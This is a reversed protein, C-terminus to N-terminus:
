YYGYKKLDLRYTEDLKRNSIFYRSLDIGFFKKKSLRRLLPDFFILVQRAKWTTIHDSIIQSRRFTNWTFHNIIRLLKISIYSLSVNRRTDEINEVEGGCFEGIRRSVGVPDRSLKEHPIVLVNECGFVQVYRDVLNYYDLYMWRFAESDNIFERATLVSGQQVFQRYLSEIMTDQRRIVIIARDFGIDKLRLAIEYNLVGTAPTGVLRESTYLSNEKPTPGRRCKHEFTTGMFVDELQAMSDWYDVYNIGSIHPFVYNQLYKTGTKPYGIHVIKM